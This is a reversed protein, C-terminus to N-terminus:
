ATPHTERKEKEMEEKKRQRRPPVHNPPKTPTLFRTTQHAVSVKIFTSYSAQSDRSMDILGVASFFCIVVDDAEDFGGGGGETLDDAGGLGLLLELLLLLDMM